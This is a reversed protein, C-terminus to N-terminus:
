HFLKRVDDAAAQFFGPPFCLNGQPACVPCRAHVHPEDKIARRCDSVDDIEELSGKCQTCTLHVDFAFGGVTVNKIM